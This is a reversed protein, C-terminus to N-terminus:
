VDKTQALLWPALGATVTMVSAVGVPKHLDLLSSTETMEIQAYCLRPLETEVGGPVM